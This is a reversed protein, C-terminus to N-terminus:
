DFMPVYTSNDVAKQAYETQFVKGDPSFTAVSYDYQLDAFVTLTFPRLRHANSQVRRLVIHHV